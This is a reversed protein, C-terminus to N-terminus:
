ATSSSSAWTSSRPTTPSARPRSCTTPSSSSPTTAKLDEMLDEIKAVHRDPRAGLLARGHADGRAGVAIARAICLRQQQGGSLGLASDDLRDKVEDWLAAGRLSARRDRRAREAQQDGHIRLRLRRERLDVEPLPEVEPLGHRHAQAARHDRRQPTSTANENLCRPRRDHVHRHPRQAPQHLAAADVQRLGFPRHLRHDAERSSLSIEKFRRSRATGSASTRSRSSRIRSTPDSRPIARPPRSQRRSTVLRSASGAGGQSPARGEVM